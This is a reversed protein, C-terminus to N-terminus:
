QVCLLEFRRTLRWGFPSGTVPDAGHDLFYRIIKPEWSLLADALPISIIDAGNEVLFQVFDLRRLSVADSLAANKSQQSNEHRAILEILSHFGTVVAVQLVSKREAPPIELTKGEAIWNEIDYLRGIRCLELLEKADESTTTPTM